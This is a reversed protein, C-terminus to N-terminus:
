DPLTVQESAAGSTMSGGHDIDINQSDMCPPIDLM